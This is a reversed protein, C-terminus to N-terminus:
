VKLNLLELERVFKEMGGHTEIFENIFLETKRTRPVNIEFLM